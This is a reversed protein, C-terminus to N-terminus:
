FHQYGQENYNYPEGQKYCRLGPTSVTKGVVSIPLTLNTRALRASLESLAAENVTFCLQYDDGGTLAWSECVSRECVSSGGTVSEAVALINGVARSAKSMPLKELHLEAGLNSARCIHGLDALLGDSIDIAASAVGILHLALDFRPQPQYFRADLYRKAAANLNQGPLEPIVKQIMALAAAGDGLDGSVCILDGLKAGSRLLAHGQAVVGHVQVSVSLAGRTTDGGFLKCQYRDAIEFLGKSFGALWSEDSEPLTIALTFGLPSAGMAALDSLSVCLVRMGISEAPADKPFHVGAVLTDVSIALQQNRGVSLLACDDGIGLDIGAQNTGMQQTVCTQANAVQTDQRKFYREILEFEGM